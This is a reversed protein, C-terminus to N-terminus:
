GIVDLHFLPEPAFSLRGVLLYILAAILAVGVTTALLIVLADPIPRSPRRARRTM